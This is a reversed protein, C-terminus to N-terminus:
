RTWRFGTVSTVGVTQNQISGTVKTAKQQLDLRIEHSVMSGWVGSVDVTVLTRDIRDTKACGSASVMVVLGFLGVIFKMHDPLLRHLVCLLRCSPPWRIPNM